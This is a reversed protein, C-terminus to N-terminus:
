RRRAPRRRARYGRGPRLGAGPVAPHFYPQAVLRAFASLARPESGLWYSFPIGNSDTGNADFYVMAKIQPHSEALRGVATLWTAWARANGSTAFEGIIVPKPHQAAWRLFPAAMSSLSQAPDASYVDACVWDVEKNGPYFAQARGMAFGYGTPCWVWTVNTAGVAAFIDRIHDWAKIYDAPSHVAWQLNPRDMEHRFELMVPRHLAKLARATAAIMADDRGAIIAQTNPDGGWTLLLIKHHQAFYSDELAPFPTGWPTYIHVIQLSRGLRHEFALFADIQGQQTYQAPQVYAGLYAGHAPVLTAHDVAPDHARGAPDHARGAAHRTGASQASASSQATGSGQLGISVIVAVVAV